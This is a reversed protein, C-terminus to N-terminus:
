RLLGKVIGSAKSFDMKGPYREKLANMCRGM